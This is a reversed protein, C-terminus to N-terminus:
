NSYLSTVSPPTPPQLMLALGISMGGCCMFCYQDHCAFIYVGCLVLIYLVTYVCILRPRNHGPCLDTLTEGHFDKQTVLPHTSSFFFFLAKIM